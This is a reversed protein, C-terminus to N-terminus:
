ATKWKQRRHAFHHQGLFGDPPEPLAMLERVAQLQPNPKTGNVAGALADLIGNMAAREGEPLNGLTRLVSLGAGSDTVAQQMGAAAERLRAQETAFSLSAKVAEGRLEAVKDAVDGM